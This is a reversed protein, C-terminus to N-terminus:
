KDSSISKPPNPPTRVIEDHSGKCQIRYLEDTILLFIANAIADHSCGKICWTFM